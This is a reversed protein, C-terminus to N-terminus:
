PRRARDATGGQTSARAASSGCERDATAGVFVAAALAPTALALLVSRRSLRM